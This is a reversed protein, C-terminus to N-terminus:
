YYKGIQLSSRWSTGRSRDIKDLRATWNNDIVSPESLIYKSLSDLEPICAVHENLSIKVHEPLFKVDYGKSSQWSFDGPDGERNTALNKKYWNYVDVAEFINYCGVTCNIGFMINSPLEEKMRLMNKEVEAWRGPYRIYEFAADTADISFYIRVLKARSWLEITRDNPMVTGNTNYSLLADSLRGQNSIKELLTIHENNRLPEGGNFHLKRINSLDLQNLYSNFKPFSRGIQYLETASLKLEAAWTSSSFPSCMICALNCAWTASHDLGELVVTRDEKPLNYFEIASERRSRRGVAEDQWCRWCAAPQENKDIQQRISNLYPSTHFDFTDAPETVSDAQCCPAIRVQDNNHKDIFMSRYVEPCWNSNNSL